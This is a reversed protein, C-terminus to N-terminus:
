EDFQESYDHGKFFDGDWSSGAEFGFSCVKQLGSWWWWRRIKKEKRGKKDPAEERSRWTSSTGAFCNYNHNHSGGPRSYKGPNTKRRRPTITNRRRSHVQGVPEEQQKGYKSIDDEQQQQDQTATSQIAAVQVTEQVVKKTTKVAAVKASRKPAM